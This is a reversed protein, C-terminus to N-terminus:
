LRWKRGNKIKPQGSDRRNEFVEQNENIAGLAKASGPSLCNRVAMSTLANSVEPGSKPFRGDESGVKIGPPQDEHPSITM